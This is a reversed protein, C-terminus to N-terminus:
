TGILVLMARTPTALNIGDNPPSFGPWAALDDVRGGCLESPPFPNTPDPAFVPSPPFPRPFPPSLRWLYTYAALDPPIPWNSKRAISQSKTDLSRLALKTSRRPLDRSISHSCYTREFM